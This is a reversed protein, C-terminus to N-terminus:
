KAAGAAPAPPAGAATLKAEVLRRIELKEDMAAWAKQWAAIAEAKKGQAALVDGRRDAVLAEFEKGTAGDLQRLAEDYKKADLLLGALRLRAIARVAGEGAKEAAWGLTAQAADAQGGDAQAKALLLAAQETAAAGAFRDQLTKFVGAATALDRKAVAADVEDYLASAKAGQDRQYWNWGNWAAFGGLVAILLWTILNGWRNWFAKLNAIQEQEELDLNRAM